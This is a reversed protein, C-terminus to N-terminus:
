LFKRHLKYDQSNHFPEFFDRCALCLYGMILIFIILCFILIKKIM